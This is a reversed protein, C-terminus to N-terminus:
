NGVLGVPTRNTVSADYEAELSTSVGPQPNM